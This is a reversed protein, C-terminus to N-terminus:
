IALQFRAPADKPDAAVLQQSIALEKQYYEVAASVEGLNISLPSGIVDAMRRYFKGLQRRLDQNTPQAAVLSDFIPEAKRYNGLAATVDGNTAQAFGLNFYLNAMTQQAQEGGVQKAWREGIELAQRYSSIAEIQNGFQTHMDGLRTRANLLLEQDEPLGTDRA